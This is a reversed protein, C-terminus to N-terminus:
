QEMVEQAMPWPNPSCDSENNLPDPNKELIKHSGLQNRVAWLKPVKNHWLVSVPSGYSTERTKWRPNWLIGGLDFNTAGLDRLLWSSSFTPSDHDLYNPFRLLSDHDLYTQFWEILEACPSFMRWINKKRCEMRLILCKVLTYPLYLTLVFFTLLVALPPISHM